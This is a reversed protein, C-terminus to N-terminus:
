IRYFYKSINLKYPQKGYCFSFKLNNQACRIIEETYIYIGISYKKFHSNWWFICFYETNTQHSLYYIGQAIISDEYLLEITHFNLGNYLIELFDIKDKSITTNFKMDCYIKWSNVIDKINKSGYVINFKGRNRNLLAKNKQSFNM